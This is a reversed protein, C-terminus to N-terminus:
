DLAKYGLEEMIQQGRPSSVPVLTDAKCSQCCKRKRTSFYLAVLVILPGIPFWLFSLLFFPLVCLAVLWERLNSPKRGVRGPQLCQTCVVNYHEVRAM